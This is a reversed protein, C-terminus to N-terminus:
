RERAREGEGEEGEKMCTSNTTKNCVDSRVCLLVGCYLVIMMMIMTKCSVIM